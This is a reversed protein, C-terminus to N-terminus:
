PILTAAQAWNLTTTPMFGLVLVLIVAAVMAFNLGSSRLPSPAEPTEERFYMAVVPRLYYFIAIMSNVAAVIVLPLLKPNSLAAKFIYFKAFFGATPPMGALSLLFITMALAQGPHRYALGHWEELGVRENDLNGLWSVVAFSGITTLAYILLYFLMPAQNVNPQSFAALIGILIFGAHAVSSYALMRKVNYQRLAVINGVTMTLGSLVVMIEFWGTSGYALFTQGFVGTLLRYLVAFGSAKVAAAMFGTIPTPAGEYADPTWMHFPVLAVKFAMAGLIMLMAITLLPEGALRPTQQAIASLNTQGTLGYLIAIGYLLFASAVGGMIFYKLGGEASKRNGTWSAVLAYVGLSMTELGILLTVFDGAHVMVMIGVISLMLVAHFEGRNVRHEELYADSVLISLAGAVLVLSDIFISFRDVVLMGSFISAANPHVIWSWVSVALTTLLGFVALSGVRGNREGSFAVALLVVCAWLTAVLIPLAHLFDIARIATSM